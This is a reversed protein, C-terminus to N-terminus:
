RLGVEVGSLAQLGYRLADELLAREDDNDATAIEELLTRTFAGRASPDTAAASVEIAPATHDRVKIVAAGTAERLMTELTFTDVAVRADAHGVLTLRLMTREGDLGATVKTAVECATDYASTVTVASSVDCEVSQATWRNLDLPHYDVTGQASIEVVVPGRGGGEDFTLPEPSGPYLLGRREDIRRRHYHGSLATRFGRARIDEAAFPGHISKGDPRSGMEAGHFLAVHVGDGRADALVDGELPDGMWVPERHGLGWITLGDRLVLPRLVPESFIHVNEPWDTRAYLSGPMYPDHNGPAILIRMPAWSAFLETLFAATDPGAREHEYLDGGITVADCERDIAERGARRLAERLDTRRRRALDGHCGSGSFARDLHLDSLHLVRYSM